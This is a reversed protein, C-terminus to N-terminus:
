IANDNSRSPVLVDLVRTIFEWEEGWAAVKRLREEMSALDIISPNVFGFTRRAESERFSFVRKSEGRSGTLWRTRDNSGPKDRDYDPRVVQAFTNAKKKCSKRLYCDRVYWFHKLSAWEFGSQDFRRWKPLHLYARIRGREPEKPENRMKVLGYDKAPPVLATKGGIAGYQSVLRLTSGLLAWEEHCIYRLPVFHLRFCDGKKIQRTKIGGSDFVTFRFKGGWGTCGFLECAVCHDRGECSTQTPDCANGGLGRVLVEFWWRISGILGTPILRDPSISEKIQDKEKSHTVSGTWIDTLAEFCYRRVGNEYTM